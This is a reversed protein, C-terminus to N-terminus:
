VEKIDEFLFNISFAIWFICLSPLLVLTPKSAAYIRYQYLMTGWDPKTFDAGLGIFTLASYQLIVSSATNGLNVYLEFIINRLIRGYLIRYWSVGLLTSAQIYEKQKERKTLNLSQNMYNGIGFVGISVGATIPTIGFISTVILACVFTPVIMLLDVVSNIIIETKGEFYGALLGLFIGFFFSIATAIVMVELTRVAGVVILSLIDRGLNDTGLINQRSIGMFVRNLNTSVNTKNSFFLIISFLIINIFIIIKKM